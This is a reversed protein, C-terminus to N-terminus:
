RKVFKTSYTFGSITYHLFYLGAPLHNINISENTHIQPLYKVLEGEANYIKTDSIQVQSNYQFQIQNQAPNPKILLDSSLENKTSSTFDLFVTLDRICTLSDEVTLRYLGSELNELTAQDGIPFYLEDRWLYEHPATGFNPTATISGDSTTNSTAETLNLEVEGSDTYEEIDFTIVKTECGNHLTINYTDPALPIDSYSFIGDEYNNGNGWSTYPPDWNNYVLNPQVTFELDFLAEDVECDYGKYEIYNVTAISNLAKNAVLINKISETGLNDLINITYIGNDLFISDKQFQNELQGEILIENQNNLLTYNFPPNLGQCSIITPNESECFSVKNYGTYKLDITYGIGEQFHYHMNAELNFYEEQLGNPWIITLKEAMQNEGLGFFQSYSQQSTFDQGCQIHRIIKKGNSELILRTGIAFYNSTTGQANIKIWNNGQNNNQYLLTSMNRNGVLDPYGDDNFDGSIISTSPARSDLNLVEHDEEFYSDVTEGNMMLGKLVVYLDSDTDCDIDLFTAGFTYDNYGLGYYAGREVFVGNGSNEFYVNTSTNTIYLDMLGDFNLDSFSASMANKALNDVGITSSQSIDIFNGNQDNQLLIHGGSYDQLVIIDEYTDNDIDMFGTALPTSGLDDAIGVENTVDTFTKDGNNRYLRISKLPNFSRFTLLLDLYGDEDYDSWCSPYSVGDKDGPQTEIGSQETIDVLNLGGQNEFLRISTATTIQLDLDKDNDFDVWNIQRQEEINDLIFISTFSTGDNRFCQLQSGDASGLTIDDDGDLDFDVFSIGSAYTNQEVGFIGYDKAMDVLKQGTISGSFYFSIIIAALIKM